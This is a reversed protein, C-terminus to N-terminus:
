RKMAASDGRPLKGARDLQFARLGATSVIGYVAVFAMSDAVLLIKGGQTARCARLQGIKGAWSFIAFYRDFLALAHPRGICVPAGAM